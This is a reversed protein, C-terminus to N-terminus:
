CVVLVRIPAQGDGAHFAGHDHHDGDADPTGAADGHGAVDELDTPETM